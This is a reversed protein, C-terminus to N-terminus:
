GQNLLRLHKGLHKELLESHLDQHSNLIELIADKFLRGSATKGITLTSGFTVHLLQRGCTEDLYVREYDAPATKALAAVGADTASIHYSQKDQAFRGADFAAIEGFLKKDTRVVVRLAELYNTGATKVHLRDGCVKGITPYISFKDSGSHISIKYPGFKEAIAAHIRLQKEFEKLDGKYDIGKEFDGIFRPALSVVHKIGRRKLELAWFLHELPKTPTDTEDVSVEIEYPRKLTAEFHKFLSEVQNIARGYKVAARHLGEREFKLTGGEKGVDYSGKLYETDFGAPFIGDKLLAAVEAALATAELKDATNNVFPSPDLTFFTFGAKATKDIDETTKLHDADAGWPATYNAAALSRQAAGMVEKASRQTRTMERISQQAFIGSFGQGHARMAALHGPTALGLRDGFGFSKKLGLTTPTPLSM